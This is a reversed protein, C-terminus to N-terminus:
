AKELPLMEGSLRRRALRDVAQHHHQQAADLRQRARHDAGDGEGPQVVGHRAVGVVPARHQAGDDQDQHQQKGCPM